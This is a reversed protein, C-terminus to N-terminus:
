RLDVRQGFRLTVPGILGSPLLPDDKAYHHWTTFTIRGTEPIAGGDMVWDPWEAAGGRPGNWKLYPPKREDGILRNPWLNTVRIELTNDGPELTGPMIHARFPPKWLIGLDKGNLTVEAIVDVHGLDLVICNAARYLEPTLHFRAKYTATGSFHKIDDNSMDTWSCLRDLHQPAPTRHGYPPQPPFELSWPGTIEIPEPIGTVDFSRAPATEGVRTVSYTGNRWALLAAGFHRELEADPWPSIFAENIRLTQGDQVATTKPEGDVVYEVRLTKRINPAPDGAINSWARVALTGNTVMAAIKETVDRARAPDDLIGYVARTIRVSKPEPEGDVPKGDRLIAAYHPEGPESFVVFASGRPDLRLRASSRGDETARWLPTATNDGTDPNWIKPRKGAIRFTVDIAEFRDSQNSVFYIDADGVRRHIWNIDATGTQSTWTLDPKVALSDMIEEIGKAWYVTGRGTQKVGPSSTDGWLAAAVEAVANDCAPYNELSPSKEPKPGLVHAGAEVLEKIKRALPPTMRIADPPLILLRYSTGGPFTIRGDDKVTAYKLLMEADCGDYDYGNPPPPRLSRRPPLAKPASEGVFYLLDAAFTGQQLLSQCRALYRLWARSQEFWTNTRDYHIGHPGFTMGPYRDLWPQMAYRHFIFRNIGSCFAADGLAKIAYPHQTWRDNEPNATFAEAGVFRLGLQHAVSAPEKGREAGEPRGAWFESMPMDSRAACQLNNFNGNGYAEISLGIGHRKALARLHGVYNDAILEAFTLRLDWLFREAIETTEVAYGLMAPLYPIADYGRRARFDDPLKPTWNQSGVEWSDIHTFSLTKGNHPGADAILKAMMGDFFRDMAERSFKDCELGTGAPTAPHNTKGTTTHGIRLVLWRGPPVKWRLRGSSDMSATIDHISDRPLPPDDPAAAPIIGDARTLGAKPTWNDIRPEPSLDLERLALNGGKPAERDFVIRFHRATAPAFSIGLTTANIGAGPITFRHITHWDQGDKSADVHGGHNQRGPGTFLTLSRATFPQAFEFGVTVPKEPSPKPLNVGTELDDDTLTAPDFRTHSCTIKPALKRMGTGAAPLAFVAVDRYHGMRAPPPALADDFDAPGETRTESWTVVQMSDAPSVWPGGSGTWGDDNNMNIEIGLRTAERVAHAFLDRWQRSLFDVRGPPIGNSVSMILTGGIGVRAMAELDATIGERTINGNMWFWYVWPRASPPPSQFSDVLDGAEAHPWSRTLLVACAIAAFFTHRTMTAGNTIEAGLIM